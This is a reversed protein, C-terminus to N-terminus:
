RALKIGRLTNSPKGYNKLNLLISIKLQGTMMSGTKERLFKEYKKTPNDKPPAFKYIMQHLTKNGYTTHLLGRAYGRNIYLRKSIIKEFHEHVLTYM